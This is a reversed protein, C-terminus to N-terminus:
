AIEFIPQLYTFLSKCSEIELDCVQSDMPFLRFNM